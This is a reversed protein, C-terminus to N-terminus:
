GPCRLQYLGNHGLFNKLKEIKSSSIFIHGQEFDLEFGLWQGRYSPEWQSKDANVVLGAAMLSKRVFKSYQQAREIGSALVIGDIFMVCRIGNSRGYKVLPRMLKTFVYCATSLGFPLVMFANDWSFGLLTQSEVHIDVHHYGSKLDFTCMYDQKEMLMLATRMDEYKFKEKWLFYNLNIILCKKGVVVHLPSCVWPRIEVQKICHNTLLDAITETAFVM